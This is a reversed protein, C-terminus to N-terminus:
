SQVIVWQVTDDIYVLTVTCFKFDVTLDEAISNITKGNRLIINTALSNTFTIVITTGATPAPPLTVTVQLSNTCIYHKSAIADFSQTTNVEKTQNLISSIPLGNILGGQINVSAADQFALTGLDANTPIQNPATGILLPM